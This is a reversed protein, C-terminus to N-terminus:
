EDAYNIGGDKIYVFILLSDIGRVNFIKSYNNSVERIIFVSPTKKVTLEKRKNCL